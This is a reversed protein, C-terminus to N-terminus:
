RRDAHKLLDAVRGTWLEFFGSRRSTRLWSSWETAAFAPDSAAVKAQEIGISISGGRKGGAQARIQKFSERLQLLEAQTAPTLSYILWRRGPKPPELGLASSSTTMSDMALKRDVEPFAGAEAPKIKLLLFPVAGPDPLMRADLQIALMLDAPDGEMLEAQLSALHPLSRIPVGTCAALVALLCFMAVRRLTKMAPM